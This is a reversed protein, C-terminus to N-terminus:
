NIMNKLYEKVKVDGLGGRKYHEKLENVRDVDNDFADLYVFVPNDDVNGPDEVRIHKPDTFMSM